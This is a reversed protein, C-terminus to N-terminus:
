RTPSPVSESFLRLAAAAVLSATSRYTSLTSPVALLRPCSPELLSLSLSLSLSLAVTQRQTHTTITPHRLYATFPLTLLMLLTLYLQTKLEFILKLNQFGALAQM